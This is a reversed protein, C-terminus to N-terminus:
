PKMPLTLAKSADDTTDKMNQILVSYADSTLVDGDPFIREWHIHVADNQGAAIVSRSGCMRRGIDSVLARLMKLLAPSKRFRTSKALADFHRFSGDSPRSGKLFENIELSLRIVVFIM